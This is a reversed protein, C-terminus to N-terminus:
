SNIGKISKEEPGDDYDVKPKLRDRKELKIWVYPAIFMSTFTGVILGILIAINFEKIETAGLILLVVVSTLTTITTLISRTVAKSLCENVIVEDSISAKNEEKKKERILDFIVITDNISYGLITLIAAIFIFNIEINFIIFAAIVSTIDICLAVLSAIGYNFKFRISVYILICIAAIIVSKIANETLDKKVVNSIVSIDSNVSIEDFEQKLSKIEDDALVEKIKIDVQEDSSTTYDSLEYESIIEKIVSEDIANDSKLTISTGGAFDIGLNVKQVFAFVVAIIIVVLYVFLLKVSHKVFNRIKSEKVKGIFVSTNLHIFGKLIYRNILIMTIMTVIITLILMSGFGKVSSEGFVFLIVAVILTTINADILSVLSKKNADTFAKDLKKGNVLEDKIKELTVISSDVAMGVGLILAAIGTLTLVGDIANFMALVLLSYFVLCISSIFGSLRYFITMIITIIVLTIVGALAAIRLTDSGFSADVIKTSVEELKTPLSGSNILDVLEQAEEKTFNGEIVVNSSFAEKVTASSICAANSTGCEEKMSAFSHKTEDYDLWIVILQDESKSVASTVHYFTDNDKIKLAVVPRGTENYDLSAGPSDLVDAAMLLEDSSNRFTLVAPTSLRERAENEDTVGPLKVRIKDGEVSIEPESVGLTDIRNNISKYTATLMDDTLEEDENLPSVKYLVEFGGKLDLGYNISNIVPKISFVIAVVMLIIFLISIKLNSKM